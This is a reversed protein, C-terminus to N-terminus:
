KVPSMERDGLTVSRLESGRISGLISDEVLADRSASVIM